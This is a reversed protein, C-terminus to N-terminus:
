VLIQIEDKFNFKEPNKGRLPLFKKRSEKLLFFSTLQDFSSAFRVINHIQLLKKHCNPSNHHKYDHYKYYKSPLESCPACM